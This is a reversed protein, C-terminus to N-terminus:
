VFHGYDVRTQQRRVLCLTHSKFGRMPVGMFFYQHRAYYGNVGPEQRSVAQQLEKGLEQSVVYDADLPLIWEGTIPLNNLAWNWQDPHDVFQHEYISVPYKGCLEKTGDTSGSDVIFIEECWGAISNLCSEINKEENYTLIVATIPLM